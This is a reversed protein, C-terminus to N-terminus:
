TINLNFVHIVYLANIFILNNTPNFHIERYCPGTGSTNYQILNNMNQDLKWVHADRTAYHSSGISTLYAPFSFTNSSVYWWYNHESVYYYSNSSTFMTFGYAQTLHISNIQNFSFRLTWNRFLSM